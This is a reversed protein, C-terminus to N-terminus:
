NSIRLGCVLIGERSFNQKRRSNESKPNIINNWEIYYIYIYIYNVKPKVYLNLLNLLINKYKVNIEVNLGIQVGVLLIVELKQKNEEEEAVSIIKDLFINFTDSMINLYVPNASPKLLIPLIQCEQALLFRTVSLPETTLLPIIDRTIGILSERVKNISDM